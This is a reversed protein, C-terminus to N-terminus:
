TMNRPQSNLCNWLIFNQIIRTKIKNLGTKGMPNKRTKETLFYCLSIEKDIQVTPLMMKKRSLFSQDPQIAYFAM